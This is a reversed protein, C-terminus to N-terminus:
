QNGAPVLLADSGSDRIEYELVLAIDDMGVLMDVLLAIGEEHANFPRQLTKLEL